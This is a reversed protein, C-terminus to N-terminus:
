RRPATIEQFKQSEYFKQFISQSDFVNIETEVEMRTIEDPLKGPWIAKFEREEGSKVTRMETTNIFGIKGSNDRLIIKIKILSFDYPSENRLLGSASSQFFDFKLNKNIIKIEPNHFSSDFKAWAVSEVKFEVKAGTAGSPLNNEVIFKTEQPLIFSAGKRSGLVNGSEDKVMFEYNVAEGGWFNNPNEIRAYADLSGEQGSKTSGSELINLERADYKECPRCVGGCDVDEENQNKLSDSCTEEPRFAQYIAGVLALFIVGYIGIIIWRKIKRRKEDM